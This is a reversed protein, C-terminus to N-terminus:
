NSTWTAPKTQNQKPAFAQEQQSPGKKKSNPSKPHTQNPKQEGGRQPTQEDGTTHKSRTAPMRSKNARKVRRGQAPRCRSKKAAAFFLLC